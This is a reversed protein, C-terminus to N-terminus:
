PFDRMLGAMAIPRGTNANILYHLNVHVAKILSFVKNVRFLYHFYSTQTRNRCLLNFIRRTKDRLQTLRILLFGHCVQRTVQRKTHYEKGTTVCSIVLRSVNFRHCGPLMVIICLLCFYFIYSITM